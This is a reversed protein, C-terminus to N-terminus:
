TEHPPVVEVSCTAGRLVARATAGLHHLRGGHVPRSIVLRDSASSLGLLLHAAQGHVVDVQSEVQPHDRRLDVLQEDLEKGVREAWEERGTRNAVIDDYGPALRWAHVVLVHGGPTRAAEDFAAALVPGAHEPSKVAAVIRGTPTPAPVFGPPVVVVPCVARAAVGTVTAGTWVREAASVHRGGLVLLEADAAEHVISSVRAGPVISTAVELDPAARRAAALAHEAVTRANAQFAGDPIVPLPGSPLYSPMVHIITLSAGRRAAEGAAYTVGRTGAATGDTATVVRGTSSQSM